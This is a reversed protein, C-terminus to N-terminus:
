YNGRKLSIRDYISVQVADEGDRRSEEAELSEGARKAHRSWFGHNEICFEDCYVSNMM